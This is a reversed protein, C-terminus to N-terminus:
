SGPLYGWIGRWALNGLLRGPILTFIGAIIVGGLYLSRMSRAHGAVDGRRVRWLALPLGVLTLLTFPHIWTFRLFAPIWLSTIVVTLIPAAWTWGAVRHGSTGKPRALQWSGLVLACLAASLHAVVIPPPPTPM